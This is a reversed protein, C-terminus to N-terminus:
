FKEYIFIKSNKLDYEKLLKLNEKNRCDILYHWNESLNSKKIVTNLKLDLYLAFVKEDYCDFAVNKSKNITTYMDEAIAKRSIKKEMYIPIGIFGALFRLLIIFASITIFVKIWKDKGINVIFYAFIIAILPFLPLIYRGASKSILFPLYNVIVVLILTKIRTDINIKKETKYYSIFILLVVFSTPLLQKFNLIPFFLVNTLRNILDFNNNVDVRSLSEYFLFYLYKEPNATNIIWLFSIFLAFLLGTLLSPNLVIKLNKFYVILGLLTFTFFAISPFGKLLFSIGLIIGAFFLFINKNEYFGTYLFTIMLFIFFTYTIDIEALYGYWFIVDFFTLFILSSILSFIKNKFLTFSFIYVLIANLVLFTITLFRGTLESWGFIFSYLIILWNFLPPKLYYNEGLVTPQLFNKEKFMEYAILTRLSEEGRFELVDLNPFLSLIAFLILILIIKEREFWM